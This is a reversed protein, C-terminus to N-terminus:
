TGQDQHLRELGEQAPTFDHEISLAEAYAAIAGQADDTRERCLGLFHFFEPARYMGSVYEDAAIEEMVCRADGIYGQRFLQQANGIREFDDVLPHDPVQGEDINKLRRLLEQKAGGEPLRECIGQWRRAAGPYDGLYYDIQGLYNLIGMDPAQRNLANQLYGLAKLLDKRCNALESFMTGVHYHAIGLQLHLGPNEPELLLLIKLLTIKRRIYLPDVQRADLMVLQTGIEAMYHPYADRLLEAYARNHPCDPFERLYDYVGLGLADDSPEDAVDKSVPFPIRPLELPTRESGVAVSRGPPPTLLRFFNPSLSQESRTSDSMAIMVQFLDAPAVPSPISGQM